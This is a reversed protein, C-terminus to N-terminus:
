VVVNIMRGKVVIVKKPTKGEFYKQLGEHNIVEKEILDTATDLTFNMKMRTKGNVAVPYEFANEVLLSEDYTPFTAHVISNKNGMQEWLYETVFPAYSSLIILLSDLVEKKHCNLQTLENVCIMFASISTNF